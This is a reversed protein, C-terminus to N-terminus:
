AKNRNKNHAYAAIGATTTIGLVVKNRMGKAKWPAKVGNYTRKREQWYRDHHEKDMSGTIRNMNIVKAYDKGGRGIGRADSARDARGEEAIQRHTLVRQGPQPPRIKIANAHTAEHDVVRRAGPGILHNGIVVERVAKKGGHPRTYGHMGSSLTDGQRVVTLRKMKPMQKARTLDQPTHDPKVYVNRAVRVHGTSELDARTIPNRREPAKLELEPQVQGKWYNGFYRGDRGTLPGKIGTKYKKHPKKGISSRPEFGTPGNGTYSKKVARAQMHRGVSRTAGGAALLAAGGLAVPVGVKVMKTGRNIKKAGKVAERLNHNVTEPEKYGKPYRGESNLNIPPRRELQKPARYSTDKQQRQIANNYQALGSVFKDTGMSGLTGGGLGIATGATMMNSGARQTKKGRDSKSIEGDHSVGFASIM